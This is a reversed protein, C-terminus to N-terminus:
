TGVQHVGREYCTNFQTRQNELLTKYLRPGDPTETAKSEQM